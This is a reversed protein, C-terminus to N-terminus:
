HTEWSLHVANDIVGIHSYAQPINGLARQTRAGYQESLIGTPGALGLIKEFLEEANSRRGTLLYSDVLWSACLHFGGEFGPLGDDRRYRYVTPGRMLSEEVAQITGIFRPDSAEVLGSLGVWLAAADADNDDYAATFGGVDEKFGHTLVDESIRDRLNLWSPDPEDMFGSSIRLARDVTVWCMIKSHVHHRRAERIEWIGHDPENWRRQVGRVMAQVLRWHESSIPAGVEALQAVLEVIPGFVDLQVQRSALNSVRVPRSGGYGSLEAIEAEPPLTQGTITYVPQLREPSETADVVSLVWDLYQMAESTSGLRVLSSASM